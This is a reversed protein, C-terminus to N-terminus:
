CEWIWLSQQSNMARSSESTSLMTSWVRRRSVAKGQETVFSLQGKGVKRTAGPIQNGEKENEWQGHSNGKM